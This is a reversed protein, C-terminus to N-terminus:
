KVFKMAEEIVLRAGKSSLHDDDYYLVQNGIQTVCRGPIFTDCFIKDPRVRILNEREPISDLTAITSENRAKFSAYATTLPEAEKDTFLLKKLQTVPVDWGVEPIPYIIIVKKESQLLKEISARYRQKILTKREPEDHIKKDGNTVVDIFGHEGNEIGGEGNDYENRELYQTWRASLIVYHINKNDILFKFTQQNYEFCRNALSTDARYIGEVPPCGSYTLSLFGLNRSKLEKELEFSIADAHSDGLLAGQLNRPDGLMCSDAPRPFTAAGFHCESQRPNRDDIAFLFPSSSAPLRQPFGDAFYGFAGIAVFFSSGIAAHIFTKRRNGPQRTRFPTEIYKWSIFGLLISLLALMGFLLMGPENMSRLRAFSFLPQHWLYASYSILGIGVLFRCGLLKGALTQHNSFALILGAGATPILSYLSPSPTNKHFAFISYLVLALGVLGAWESAPHSAPAVFKKHNAHLSILAGILIEFVRTPLLYFTFSPHTAVGWQAFLMSAVAALLLLFIIWKKGLKWALMLFAPFLIYFQEEVALSWTHLLPNLRSATGFYGSTPYFLVNSVFLPVAALSESFIKLEHPLMWLWAFPLTCLMMFFLAPLIRRIRREYFSSVSFTGQDMEEVIIATILYGSIVFFIDVGVFGGSFTTFGAHFFIVPLVALARLGDIEKRYEM